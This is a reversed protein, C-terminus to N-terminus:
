LDSHQDLGGSSPIVSVFSEDARPLIPRRRTRELAERHRAGSRLQDKTNPRCRHHPAPPAILWAPAIMGTAGGSSSGTPWALTPSAVRLSLVPPPRCSDPTLARVSSSRNSYESIPAM